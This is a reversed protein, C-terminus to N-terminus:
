GEEFVAQQPCAPPKGACMHAHMPCPHANPHSPMHCHMHAHSHTCDEVPSALHRGPVEVLMLQSCARLLLLIFEAFASALSRTLWPYTSRRNIGTERLPNALLAPQHDAPRAASPNIQPYARTLGPNASPAGLAPTPRPCCWPPEAPAGRPLVPPGIGLRRGATRGQATRSGAHNGRRGRRM